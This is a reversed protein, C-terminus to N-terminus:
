YGHRAEQEAEVLERGAQTLAYRTAKFGVATGGAAIGVKRSIIEILGEAELENMVKVRDGRDGWNGAGYLLEKQTHSRDTLRFLILERHTM